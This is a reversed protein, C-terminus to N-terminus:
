EKITIRDDLVASAFNMITRYADAKRSYVQGGASEIIRGNPATVRVRYGGKSKVFEISYKRKAM